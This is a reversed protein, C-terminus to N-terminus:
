GSKKKRARKLLQDIRAVHQGSRDVQFYLEPPRRLHLREAVERRIFGVAATLGELTRKAEDDDGEVTVYVRASRSDDALEVSSVTALGIRPDGLEGELIALIEERLAEGLRGRHYKAGRSEVM